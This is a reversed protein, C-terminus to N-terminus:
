FVYAMWIIYKFRGTIYHEMKFMTFEKMTKLYTNPAKQRRRQRVAISLEQRGNTVEMPTRLLSTHREEVFISNDAAISVDSLFYQLNMVNQVFM